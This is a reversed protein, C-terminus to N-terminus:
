WSVKGIVPPIDGGGQGPDVPEDDDAGFGASSGVSAVIGPQRQAHTAATARGPSATIGAVPAGFENAPAAGRFGAAPMAVSLLCRREFSELGCFVVRRSGRQTKCSRGFFKRISWM